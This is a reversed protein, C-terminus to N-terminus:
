TCINEFHVMYIPHPSLVACYLGLFKSQLQFSAFRVNCNPTISKKNGIGILSTLGAPRFISFIGMGVATNRQAGQSNPPSRCVMKVACDCLVFVFSSPPSPPPSKTPQNQSESTKQVQRSPAAFGTRSTESGNLVPPYKLLLFGNCFFDNSVSPQGFLQALKAGHWFLRGCGRNRGGLDGM